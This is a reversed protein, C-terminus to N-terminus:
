DLQVGEDYKIISYVPSHWEKGVQYENSGFYKVAGQLQDMDVVFEIMAGNIGICGNGELTHENAFSDSLICPIVIGNDLTIDIYQGILQAYSQGLAVCYRGNVMRIGTDSDTYAYESQLKYQYSSEDTILKYDMYSMSTEQYWSPAYIIDGDINGTTISTESSDNIYNTNDSLESEDSNLHEEESSNSNNDKIPVFVDVVNESVNTRDSNKRTINNTDNQSSHVLPTLVIMAIISSVLIGFMIGSVIVKAKSMKRSNM